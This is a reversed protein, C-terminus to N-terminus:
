RAMVQMVEAMVRLWNTANMRDTTIQRKKMRAPKLGTVSRIVRQALLVTTSVTAAKETTVCKSPKWRPTISMRSRTKKRESIPKANNAVPTIMRPCLAPQHFLVFVEDVRRDAQDGEREDQHRHVEEQRAHR